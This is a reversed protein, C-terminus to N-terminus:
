YKRDNLNSLVLEVIDAGRELVLAYHLFFSLAHVCVVDIRKLVIESEDIVIKDGVKHFPHRCRGCVECVGDLTKKKEM